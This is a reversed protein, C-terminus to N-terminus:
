GEETKRLSVSGNRANVYSGFIVHGLARIASQCSPEKEIDSLKQESIEWRWAQYEESSNKVTDMAGSTSKAARMHQEMFGQARESLTPDGFLFRFLESVTEQPQICMKELQVRFLKEPYSKVMRNFDRLDTDLLSCQKAPSSDWGLTQMSAISGRPDRVLYIAKMNLSEDKLLSEIWSLRSRIVKVVRINSKLCLGRLDLNRRCRGNGEKPTKFCRLAEPHYYRLFLGKGKMWEEFEEKFNCAALSSLFGPVCSGNRYCPENKTMWIPEFFVVTNDLTGLLESMMTSGSRGSSSVLLIFFPKNAQTPRVDDRLDDAGNSTIFSVERLDTQVGGVGESPSLVHMRLYLGCLFFAVMSVNLFVNRGNHVCRM